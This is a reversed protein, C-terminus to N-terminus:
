VNKFHLLDLSWGGLSYDSKDDSIGWHFYGGIVFAGVIILLHKGM